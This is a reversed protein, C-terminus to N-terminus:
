LESGLEAQLLDTGPGPQPGIELGQPGSSLEDPHQRAGVGIGPVTIRVQPLQPIHEVRQQPSSDVEHDEPQDETRPAVNVVKEGVQDDSDEQEPEDALGEASARLRD